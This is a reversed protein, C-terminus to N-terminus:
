KSSTSTSKFLFECLITLGWAQLWTVEKVGSVADVLCGNWLMYVPWSFLFSIGVCIAVTTVFGILSGIINSKM